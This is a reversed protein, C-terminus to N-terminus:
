VMKWTPHLHPKNRYGHIMEGAVQIVESISPNQNQLQLIPFGKQAAEKEKTSIWHTQFHLKKEVM